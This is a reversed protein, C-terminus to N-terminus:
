PRKKASFKGKEDLVGGVLRWSGSLTTRAENTKAEYSAVIRNSTMPPTQFTVTLNKVEGKMEVGEGCKVTLSKDQQKITCEVLAQNGRFDPNMAFTWKGSLDPPHQTLGTLLIALAVPIHPTM